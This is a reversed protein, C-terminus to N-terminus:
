ARVDLRRRFRNRVASWLVRYWPRRLEKLLLVQLEPSQEVIQWMRVQVLHPSSDFQGSWSCTCCTENEKVNLTGCLPCVKFADPRRRQIL